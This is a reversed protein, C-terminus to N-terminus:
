TSCEGLERTVTALPPEAEMLVHRLDLLDIVDGVASSVPELCLRRNRVAAKLGYRLLETIAISDIFSLQAADIALLDGPDCLAQDLAARLAELGSIDLEGTLVVRGDPQLAASFPELRSDRFTSPSATVSM